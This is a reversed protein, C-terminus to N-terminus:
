MSRHCWQNQHWWYCLDILSMMSGSTMLLVHRDIVDPYSRMTLTAM